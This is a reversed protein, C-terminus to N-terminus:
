GRPVIWYILKGGGLDYEIKMPKGTDFSITVNKSASAARAAVVLMDISYSSSAKEVNSTLMILPAGERLTCSYEKQQEFAKVVVAGNEYSFVAAEGVLKLDGIIDKFDESLITFSVSLDIKLEPVPEVPRPVIPIGFEREVGTKRDRLAMVLEGAEKNITLFISDNRTARRVVKKLETTPVIFSTEEEVSLEEFELSPISVVALMTKDPTLVKFDIGNSTVYFPIEDSLKVLAQIIKKFKSANPYTAKFM